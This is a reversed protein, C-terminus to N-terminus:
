YFGFVKASTSRNDGSGTGIPQYKTSNFWIPYLESSANQNLYDIVNKLYNNGDQYFTDILDQKSQKEAATYTKQADSVGALQQFNLLFGTPLTQLALENLARQMTLCAIAAKLDSIFADYKEYDDKQSNKVDAWFDSGLANKIVFDEVKKMVPQLARYTLCSNGINVYDNFTDAKSILFKFGLERAPENEWDPWNESYNAEIYALLDDLATYGIQVLYGRAEMKMWQFAQKHTDTSVMQYGADGIQIGHISSYQFLGLGIMVVRSLKIIEKAFPDEVLNIDYNVVEYQSVCYEYLSSGLYKKVVNTEVRQLDPSLKRFTSAATISVSEEIQATNSLFM